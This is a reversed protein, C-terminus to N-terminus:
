ICTPDALDHARLQSLMNLIVTPLFLDEHENSKNIIVTLTTSLFFADMCASDNDM